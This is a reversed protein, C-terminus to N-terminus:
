RRAHERYRQCRRVENGARQAASPLDFAWGGGKVHLVWKTANEAASAKQFYFGPTSGDLCRGLGAQADTLTYLPMGDPADRVAGEEFFNYPEPVGHQRLASGPAIKCAGLVGAVLLCALLRRVRAM